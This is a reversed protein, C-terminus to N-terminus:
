ITSKPGSPPSLPPSTIATPVGQVFKYFHYSNYQYFKLFIDQVIFIYILLFANSLLNFNLFAKRQILHGFLNSITKFLAFTIFTRKQEHM